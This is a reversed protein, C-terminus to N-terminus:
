CLFCARVPHFAQTKVSFLVGYSEWSLLHHTHSTKCGCDGQAVKCFTHFKSVTVTLLANGFIGPSVQILGM